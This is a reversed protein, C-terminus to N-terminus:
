SSPKDDDDSFALPIAIAAAIAGGTLYPHNRVWEVWGHRNGHGHVPGFQGRVIPEGHLVVVNESAGPPATNPAWLRCQQVGQETVLSYHGGRLERAAFVGNRDSVTRVIEQDGQRISVAVTAVGSGQADVIRGVLVGGEALAIDSGHAPSAANAAQLIPSLTSAICTVAVACFRLAPCFKM